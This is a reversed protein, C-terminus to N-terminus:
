TASKMELGNTLLIVLSRVRGAATIDPRATPNPKTTTKEIKKVEDKIFLLPLLEGTTRPSVPCVIEM